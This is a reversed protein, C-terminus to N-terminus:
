RRGFLMLDGGVVKSRVDRIAEITEQQFNLVERLPDSHGSEYMRWADVWLDVLKRHIDPWNLGSGREEERIRNEVGAVSDSIRKSELSLPIMRDRIDWSGHSCWGDSVESVRGDDEIERVQKLKFECFCWDGVKWTEDRTM